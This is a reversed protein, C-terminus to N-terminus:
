QSFSAIGVPVKLKLSFWYAISNFKNAFSVQAKFKQKFYLKLQARSENQMSLEARRKTLIALSQEIAKWGEFRGSLLNKKMFCDYFKM